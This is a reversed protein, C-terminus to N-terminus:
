SAFPTPTTEVDPPLSAGEILRRDGVPESLEVTLPYPANGICNVAGGFVRMNISISIANASYGITPELIRGEPSQGSACATETVLLHLTRTEPTIEFGPGLEWIAREAHDTMGVLTEANALWVTSNGEHRWALRDILSWFIDDDMPSMTSAPWPSSTTPLVLWLASRKPTAASREHSSISKRSVYRTHLM